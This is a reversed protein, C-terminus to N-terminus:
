RKNTASLVVATWKGFTPSGWRIDVVVDLVEGTVVRCLKAQPFNLQYHLGRLTNHASRSHNDQVFHPHLGLEAFKTRHYTEFLFGGIDGFVEPEIVIVGALLTNIARM